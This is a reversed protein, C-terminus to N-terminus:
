RTIGIVMICKLKACRVRAGGGGEGGGGFISTKLDDTAMNLCTHFM